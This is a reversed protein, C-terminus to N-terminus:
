RLTSVKLIQGWKIINLNYMLECPCFKVSFQSCEVPKMNRKSNITCRTIYQAKKTSIDIPARILKHITKTKRLDNVVRRHLKLKHLSMEYMDLYPNKTCFFFYTPFTMSIANTCLQLWSKFILAFQFYPYSNCMGVQFTCHLFQM